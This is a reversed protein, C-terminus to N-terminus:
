AAKGEQQVDVGLLRRLSEVVVLRRGFVKRTELVGEEARRLLTARSLGSMSQAGALTVTIPAPEFSQQM